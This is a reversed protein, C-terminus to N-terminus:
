FFVHHTSLLCQFAATVRCVVRDDCGLGIRRISDLSIGQDEAGDRLLDKGGSRACAGAVDLGPATSLTWMLCRLAQLHLLLPVAGPAAEPAYPTWM